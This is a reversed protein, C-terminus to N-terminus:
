LLDGASCHEVSVSWADRFIPHLRLSEQDGPEGLIDTRSTQGKLQTTSSLKVAERTCHGLADPIGAVM